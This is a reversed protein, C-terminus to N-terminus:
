RLLNRSKHPVCRRQCPVNESLLEWERHILSFRWMDSLYCGDQGEGGFILMKGDGEARM